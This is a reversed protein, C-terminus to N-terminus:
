VIWGGLDMEMSEHEWARMAVANALSGDGPRKHKGKFMLRCSYPHGLLGLSKSAGSCLVLLLTGEDIVSIEGRSSGGSRASAFAVKVRGDRGNVVPVGVAGRGQSLERGGCM